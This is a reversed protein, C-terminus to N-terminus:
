TLYCMYFVSSLIFFHMQLGLYNLLGFTIAVFLTRRLLVVESLTLGFSDDDIQVGMYMSGIKDKDEIAGICSSSSIMMSVQHYWLREPYDNWNSFLFKHRILMVDDVM